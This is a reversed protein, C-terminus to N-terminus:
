TGPVGEAWLPGRNMSLGLSWEIPHQLDIGQCRHVARQGIASHWTPPGAPAPARHHGPALVISRETVPAGSM